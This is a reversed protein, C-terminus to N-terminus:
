YAPLASTSLATKVPSACMPAQCAYIPILIPTSPSAPSIIIGLIPFQPFLTRDIKDGCSLIWKRYVNALYSWMHESNDVLQRAFRGADLQVKDDDDM